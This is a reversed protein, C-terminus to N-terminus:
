AHQSTTLLQQQLAEAGLASTTGDAAGGAGGFGAMAHVLQATSDGSSGPSGTASTPAFGGLRWDLGVAGL